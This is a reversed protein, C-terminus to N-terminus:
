KITSGVTEFFNILGASAGIVLAGAVAWGAAKKAATEQGTLGQRHAFGWTAGAGVLAILCALLSVGAFWNVIKQLEAGGPRSGVDPTVSVAALYLYM